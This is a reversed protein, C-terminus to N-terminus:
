AITFFTLNLLYGTAQAGVFLSGVVTRMEYYGSANTSTFNSPGEDPEGVFVQAGDIGLGTVEDTIYGKVTATTPKLTFNEWRTENVGIPVQRNATGFGDASVGLEWFGPFVNITYYGTANTNTSNSFGQVSAVVSANDIPTGTGNEAVFGQITSTEPPFPDLIMDAWVTDGSGVTFGTENTLYGPVDSQLLYDGPIIAMDYAGSGDLASFNIYDPQMAPPTLALMFGTTIPAMTGSDTVNGRVRATRPPAPDLSVDKVTDGTILLTQELFLYYGGHAVAFLHGGAPVTMSYNGDTDTFTENLYGVTQGEVHILADAIPSSTSNDTVRGSIVPDGPAALATPSTVAAFAAMFMAGFLVIALLHVSLRRTGDSSGM